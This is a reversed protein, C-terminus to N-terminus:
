LNNWLHKARPPWALDFGENELTLNPNYASDNRMQSPWEEWMYALESQFREKKEATDEYGRTASEHHFLEAYPTYISKFGKQSLKLCLDVDNCAVKLKEENFGGVDFFLKKRVALCAGTVASFSSILSARGMYGPWYCSGGKHAHGAWGGIGLIIGAHQITNNPYLLKGGVAGVDPRVAHSVLEELWGGAIVEIDNNLFVLVDGKAQEAAKNNIASFSFPSDDKIVKLRPESQAKQSFYELAAAEDSGNDILLVEFPSYYTKEFISELCVKVLDLKNRTPIIISVLPAKQPIEYKARYGYGIYYALAPKSSRKFHDNLAREGALMAYPKTNSEFATSQSHARWHYLVFPVHLVQEPKVHESVRLVLDYDQAGTFEDRMGGLSVVLDRPYMALHTIMNHSYLLDRNWDPKFYHDFRRGKEDIKDEDSYVLKIDTKNQLAHVMYLLAHPALEDDHDLFTVWDGKALTLASNTAQAIHGNTKRVLIKIRADRQALSELLKPVNADPSADDVLCLEWNPYVQNLVSDVAKKLWLPNPSYTPLLVSVLPKYQLNEAEKKLRDLQEPTPTDYKAVWDNYSRGAFANMLGSQGTLVRKVQRLTQKVRRLPKLLRWGMSNQIVQLYNQLNRVHAENVEMRQMEVRLRSIEQHAQTLQKQKDELQQRINEHEQPPVIQHTEM